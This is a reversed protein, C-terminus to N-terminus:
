CPTRSNAHLAEVEDADDGVLACDENARAGAVVDVSVDDGACGLRNRTVALYVLKSGAVDDAM